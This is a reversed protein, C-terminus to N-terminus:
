PGRVVAHDLAPNLILGQRAAQDNDSRLHPTRPDSRDKGEGAKHREGTPPRRRSRALANRAVAILYITTTPDVENAAGSRAARVCNSIEYRGPTSHQGCWDYDEGKTLLHWIIVTLKRAVAVAASHNITM